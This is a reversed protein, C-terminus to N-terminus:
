AKYLIKSFIHIIRYMALMSSMLIWIWLAICLVIYKIPNGFDILLLFMSWIACLMSLILPSMFYKITTDYAGTEKMWKVIDSSHISILIAKATALFGISIANITIAAIFIDRFGKALAFKPYLNFIGLYVFACLAGGVLPYYKEFSNEKM